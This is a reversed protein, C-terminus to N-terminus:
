IDRVNPHGNIERYKKIKAATIEHFINGIDKTKLRMKSKQGTSEETEDQSLRAPSTM